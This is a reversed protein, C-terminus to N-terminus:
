RSELKSELYRVVAMANLYRVKADHLQDKLMDVETPKTEAAAIPTLAHAATRPTAEKVGNALRIKGDARELEGDKVLKSIATYVQAADRGSAAIIEGSKLPGRNRVIKVVLERVTAKKRM